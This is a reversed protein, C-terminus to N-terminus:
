RLLKTLLSCATAGRTMSVGKWPRIQLIPQTLGLSRRMYVSKYQEYMTFRKEEPAGGGPSVFHFWTASSDIVQYKTTYPWKITVGAGMTWSSLIDGVNVFWDVVFSFPVLEWAVSYPNVFGMSEALYLNPNTVEVLCGMKVKSVVQKTRRTAIGQTWAQTFSGQGKGWAKAPLLPDTLAYLGRGIDQYLPEVGFHFKLYNDGFAKAKPKLGRPVEVRLLRAATGFDLRKLARVFRVTKTLADFILQESKKHEILNVSWLAEERLRSTLADYARNIATTYGGSDELPSSDIERMGTGDFRYYAVVRKESMSYALPQQKPKAQRYWTQSKWYTKPSYGGIPSGTHTVTRTFPGKIPAVM